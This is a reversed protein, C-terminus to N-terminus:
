REIRESELAPGQLPEVEHFKGYDVHVTGDPAESLIDLFNADWRIDESSYEGRAM